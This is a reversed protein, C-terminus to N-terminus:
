EGRTPALRHWVLFSDAVVGGAVAGNHPWCRGPAGLLDLLMAGGFGVHAAGSEEAVRWPIFFVMEGAAFAPSLARRLGVVGGFTSSALHRGRDVRYSSPAALCFVLLFFAPAARSWCVM